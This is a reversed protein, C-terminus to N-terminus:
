VNEGVVTVSTVNYTSASTVLSAGAEELLGVVQELTVYKRVRRKEDIDVTSAIPLNEVHGLNIQAKTVLHPNNADLMHSVLASKDASGVEKALQLISMILEQQGYIQDVELSHNIPPFTDQKDTLVDWSTTRPNFMKEALNELITLRDVVWPGGLTQYSLVATANINTNLICIGGYIIQGTARTAAVYPLALVYDRGETLQSTVGNATISVSLQSNAFFPGLNPVILFYNKGNVSSLTQTENTILNAPLRGTPDFQYSISAM